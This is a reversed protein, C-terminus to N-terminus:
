LSLIGTLMTGEYVGTENEKNNFRLMFVINDTNKYDYFGLKGLSKQRTMQFDVRNDRLMDLQFNVKVNDSIFKVRNMLGIEKKRELFKFM